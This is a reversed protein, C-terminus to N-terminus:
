AVVCDAAKLGRYFAEEMLAVGSLDTGAFHINGLSECAKEREGGWVFGVRPQIMAHGWRMVDIREILPEIDPHAKSLDAVVVRCWDEWQLRMLEARSVRPDDDLLPRYWTLVTPGHDAGSQHTSTVYGLSSRDGIVNDWCMGVRGERPRDTLHINAVVWGGYQFGATSRGSTKWDRIVHPGVFQPSAFIVDQARFSASKMHTADIAAVEIGSEDQFIETVAHSCRLNSECRAALYDIIRGNGEPWTMVAQSEARDVSLRSAFYFIGAWASTQEITLGYDDRCGYDVLWILRESDFGQDNMWHSMSIKDLERVSDDDSGTAMPIAFLRRGDRDNKGAWERMLQRFRTVQDLDREDAGVSPYLGPTWQGDSFVREEPDRCLFQEAVVPEGSDGVHSIVGMERFLQILDTNERMPVPVYHAGWPYRFSGSEGSIATGGARKGLELVVFDEIGQQRLRWAASLGAMGGGVIIVRHEQPPSPPSEPRWGDRIRHLISFDPNLLEGTFNFSRGTDCGALSALPVGAILALLERRSLTEAKDPQPAEGKGHKSQNQEARYQAGRM